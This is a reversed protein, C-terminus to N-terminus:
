KSLPSSSLECSVSTENPSYYIHSSSYRTLGGKDPCKLIMRLDRFPLKKETLTQLFDHNKLHREESDGNARIEMIHIMTDDAGLGQGLTTCTPSRTIFNCPQLSRVM